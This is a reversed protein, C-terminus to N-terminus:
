AATRPHEAPSCVKQWKQCMDSHRFLQRPTMLSTKRSQPLGYKVGVGVRPLQYVVKKVTDQDPFAFMIAASFLLCDTLLIVILDM